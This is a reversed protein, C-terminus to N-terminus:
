GVAPPLFHFVPRRGAASARERLWAPASSVPGMSSVVCSPRPAGLIGRASVAHRGRWGRCRRRGCLPSFVFAEWCRLRAARALGKTCSGGFEQTSSPVSPTPWTSRRCDVTGDLHACRSMRGEYFRPRPGSPSRVAQISWFLPRQSGCNLRHFWRDTPRSTLPDPSVFSHWGPTRGLLRSRSTWDPPQECKRWFQEVLDVAGPRLQDSKM